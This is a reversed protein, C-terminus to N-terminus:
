KTETHEKLLRELEDKEQKLKREEHLKEAEKGAEIAEKIVRDEAGKILGDFFGDTFKKAIDFIGM